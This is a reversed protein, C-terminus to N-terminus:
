KVFLLLVNNMVYLSVNKSILHVAFAAPLLPKSAMALIHMLPGVLLYPNLGALCFATQITCSVASKKLYKHPTQSSTVNSMM